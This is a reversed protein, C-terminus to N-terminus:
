ILLTNYPALLIVRWTLVPYSFLCIYFLLHKEIEFQTIVCCGFNDLPYLTVIALDRSLLFGMAELSHRSLFDYIGRHIINEQIGDPLATLCAALHYRRHNVM